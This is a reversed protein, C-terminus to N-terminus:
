IVFFWYYVFGKEYRLRWEDPHVEIGKDLLKVAEAPLGAGVPEDEALFICGIRYADILDPDLTTTIDLLAPLNKYQITRKGAEEKNGFYQITRLWYVDALLSDYGLAMKKLVASSSFYLLDPDPGTDTLHTKFLNQLPFTLIMGALVIGFCFM